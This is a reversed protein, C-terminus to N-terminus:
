LHGPDTLRKRAETVEYLGRWWRWFGGRHSGSADLLPDYRQDSGQDLQAQIRRLHSFRNGPSSKRLELWAEAYPNSRIANVIGREWFEWTSDSIQGSERMDAEDECLELYLEVEPPRQEKDQANRIRDILAWYRQVYVLEFDRVRQRRTLLNQYGAVIAAITGIFVAALGVAVESNMLADEWSSPTRGAPSRGAQLMLADDKYSHVTSVRIAHPPARPPAWAGDPKRPQRRGPFPAVSRLCGSLVPTM